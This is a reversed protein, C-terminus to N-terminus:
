HRRGSEEGLQFPAVNILNGDSVGNDTPQQDLDGGLNEWEQFYWGPHHSQHDHQNRGSKWDRKDNGPASSWDFIPALVYRNM